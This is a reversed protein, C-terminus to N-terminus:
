RGVANVTNGASTTTGSSATASRLPPLGPQVRFSSPQNGSQSLWKTLEAVADRPIPNTANSAAQRLVHSVIPKVQDCAKKVEPRGAFKTMLGPLRDRANIRRIYLKPEDRYDTPYFAYYIKVFSVPWHAPVRKMKGANVANVDANYLDSMERALKVIEVTLLKLNVNPPLAARGLAKACECRVRPSLKQDIMAKALAQVIIARGNPLQELDVNGLAEALRFQYWPHLKKQQFTAVLVTGVKRARARDFKALLAIRKLGNAAVIKLSVHQEPDQLVTLLPEAAPGYAEPPTPPRIVYEMLNLNSLILLGNLRVLYHRDLLQTCRKTVEACVVKRFDRAANPANKNRAAFAVEQLIKPRLQALNKRNQKLSLALVRWEAWDQIIKRSQANLDGALLVRRYRLKKLKVELLKSKSQTFGKVPSNIQMSPLRKLRVPAVTADDPPTTKKAKAATKTKSKGAKKKKAGAKKKAASKKKKAPSIQAGSSHPGVAFLLACLAMVLPRATRWRPPRFSVHGNVTPTSSPAPMRQVSPTRPRISFLSAGSGASVNMM